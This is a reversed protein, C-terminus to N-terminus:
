VRQLVQSVKETGGKEAGRKGRLGFGRRTHLPHETRSDQVSQHLAETPISTVPQGEEERRGGEIDEYLHKGARQEEEGAEQGGQQERIQQTDRAWQVAQIDQNTNRARQDAETYQM